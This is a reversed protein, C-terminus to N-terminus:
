KGRSSSSLFEDNGIATGLLAIGDTHVQIEPNLNGPLTHLHSNNILLLTKRPVTLINIAVLEETCIEFMRESLHAPGTFTIEDLIAFLQVSSCLTHMRNFINLLVLAYLLTFLFNAIVDGQQVGERGMITGVAHDLHVVLTSITHPVM